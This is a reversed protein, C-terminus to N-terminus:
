LIEWQGDVAQNGHVLEKGHHAVGGTYRWVSWDLGGPKITKRLEELREITAAAESRPCPAPQGALTEAPVAFPLLLLLVGALCVPLAANREGLRHQAKSRFTNPLM